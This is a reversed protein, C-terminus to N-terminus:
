DEKKTLLPKANDLRPFRSAAERQLVRVKLKPDVELQKNTRESFPRIVELMNQIFGRQYINIPEEILSVDGDEFLGTKALSEVIQDFTEGADMRSLFEERIPKQDNYYRKAYSWNISEQTTTNCSVLYLHYLLFLIVALGAFFCMIALGFVGMGAHYLVYQAIFSYPLPAGQYRAELVRSPVFIDYWVIYGM